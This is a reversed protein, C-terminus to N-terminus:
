RRNQFALRPIQDLLGLSSQRKSLGLVLLLGIRLLGAAEPTSPKVSELVAEVAGRAELLRGEAASLLPVTGGRAAMEVAQRALCLLLAQEPETLPLM